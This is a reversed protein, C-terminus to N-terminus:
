NISCIKCQIFLPVKDGYNATCRALDIATDRWKGNGATTSIAVQPFKERVVILFISSQTEKPNFGAMKRSHRRGGRSSLRSRLSYGCFILYLRMEHIADSKHLNTMSKHHLVVGSQVLIRGFNMYMQQVWETASQLAVVLVNGGKCM